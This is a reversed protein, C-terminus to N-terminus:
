IRIRQEDKGLYGFVLWLFFLFALMILGSLGLPRQEWFDLILGAPIMSWLIWEAKRSFVFYLISLLILM